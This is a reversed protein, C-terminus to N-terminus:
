INIVGMCAGAPTTAGHHRFPVNNVEEGIQVFVRREKALPIHVIVLM